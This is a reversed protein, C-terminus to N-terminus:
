KIIYDDVNITVISNLENEGTDIYIKYNNPLKSYFFNIKDRVEKGYDYSDDLFKDWKPTFGELPDGNKNTTLGFFLSSGRDRYNDKDLYLNTQEALKKINIFLDIYLIYKYKKYNSDLQWGVIFPYKKAAAKISMDLGKVQLDNFNNDRFEEM